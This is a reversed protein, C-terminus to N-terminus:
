VVIYMREEKDEGKGVEKDVIIPVATSCSLVSHFAVDQEQM